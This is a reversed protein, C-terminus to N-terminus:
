CTSSILWLAAFINSSLILPFSFSASLIIMVGERMKRPVVPLGRLVSYLIRQTFKLSKCLFPATEFLTKFQEGDLLCNFFYLKKGALLNDAPLKKHPKCISKM